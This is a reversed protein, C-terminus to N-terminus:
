RIIRFPDMIVSLLRTIMIKHFLTEQIDNVVLLITRKLLYDRADSIVV